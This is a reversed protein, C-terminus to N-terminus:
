AFVAGCAKSARALAGLLEQRVECYADSGPSVRFRCDVEVEVHGEGIGSWHVRFPRSGDSILEPCSAVIEARIAAVLEPM